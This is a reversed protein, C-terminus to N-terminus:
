HLGDYLLRKLRTSQRNVITSKQIPSKINLPRETMEVTNRVRCHITNLGANRRLESVIAKGFDPWLFGQL